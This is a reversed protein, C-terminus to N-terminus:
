PNGSRRKLGLVQTEDHRRRPANRPARTSVAAANTTASEHASGTTVRDERGMAHVLASLRSGFAPDSDDEALRAPGRRASRVDRNNNASGEVSELERAEALDGADSLTSLTQITQPTVGLLLTQGDVEVIVIEARLGVRARATVNLTHTQSKGQVKGGNKRKKWFAFAAGAIVVMVALKTGIDSSERAPALTLPHAPRVGLKSVDPEAANVTAVVNAVPAASAIPAPAAPQAIVAVTATAAPAPAPAETAAAVSTPAATVSPSARPAPAAKTTPVHSAAPARVTAVPASSASPAASAPTAPEAAHANTTLAVGIAGLALIMVRPHSKM